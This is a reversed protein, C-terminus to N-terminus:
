RPTAPTPALGGGPRAFRLGIRHTVQDLRTFREMAYDVTFRGMVVGGGLSLPWHDDGSGRVTYGARAVFEAGRIGPWSLEAAGTGSAVGGRVTRVEAMPRITAQRVHMAPAAVAARFTEPLSGRTAGLAVASGLHQAAAAVDWGARSTWALGVSAAVGGASLDAIRTRVLEVVVGARVRRLADGGYLDHLAPLTIAYGIEVADDSASVTRGTEIGDLGSASAVIEKVTGYDLLTAGIGLTGRGLPIAVAVASLQTSALYAESALGASFRTARALQAPSAFLSWEDSLAAAAADGLGLARTSTPLTLLIGARSGQGRLSGATAILAITAIIRRM